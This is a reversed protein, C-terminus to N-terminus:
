LPDHRNEFYLVILPSCQITHTPDKVFFAQIEFISKFFQCRESKMEIILSSYVLDKFSSIQNWFLSSQWVLLVDISNAFGQCFHCWCKELSRSFNVVQPLVTSALFSFLCYESWSRAFFSSWIIFWHVLVSLATLPLSTWSYDIFWYVRVITPLLSTGSPCKWVMM